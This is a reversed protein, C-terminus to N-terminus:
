CSRQALLLLIIANQAVMELYEMIRESRFM